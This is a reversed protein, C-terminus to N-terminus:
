LGPVTKLKQVTSDFSFRGVSSGQSLLVNKERLKIEVSAQLEVM